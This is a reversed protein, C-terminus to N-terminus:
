AGLAPTRIGFRKIKRYITARSIGLEAAAEDKNWGAKKLASVIADRETSELLAL